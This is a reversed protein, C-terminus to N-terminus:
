FLNLKPHKNRCSKTNYKNQPNNPTCPSHPFGKMPDQFTPMCSQWSPSGGLCFKKVRRWGHHHLGLCGASLEIDPVSIPDKCLNDTLWKMSLSFYHFFFSSSTSAKSFLLWRETFPLKQLCSLEKPHACKHCISTGLSPTSNTSCSDAYAGAVANGSRLWMQLGAGCSM